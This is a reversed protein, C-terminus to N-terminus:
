KKKLNLIIESWIGLLCHLNRRNSDSCWMGSTETMWPFLTSPERSPDRYRLWFPDSDQSASALHQTAWPLICKLFHRLIETQQSFDQPMDPQWIALWKSGTTSGGGTSKAGTRVVGKLYERTRRLTKDTLVMNPNSDCLPHTVALSKVSGHKLPWPLTM